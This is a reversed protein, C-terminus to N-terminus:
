DFNRAIERCNDPNLDHLKASEVMTFQELKDSPIDNFRNIFAGQDCQYEIHYPNVAMLHCGSLLLSGILIVKKM